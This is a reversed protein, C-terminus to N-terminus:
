LVSGVTRALVVQALPLAQRRSASRGALAASFPSWHRLWPAGGGSSASIGGESIFSPWAHTDLALALRGLYRQGARQTALLRSSGGMPSPRLRLFGGASTTPLLMDAHWRRHGCLGTRALSGLGIYM